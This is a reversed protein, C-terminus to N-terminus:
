RQRKGSPTPPQNASASQSSSSTPPQWHHFFIGGGPSSQSQEQQGIQGQGQQVGAGPPPPPGPRQEEAALRPLVQQIPGRLTSSPPGSAQQSRMTPSMPNSGYGYPVSPPGLPPPPAAAGAGPPPPAYPQPGALLRERRNDPSGTSHSQGTLQQQHASHLSNNYQQLWEVNLNALSHSGIGAFIIPVLHAPVGSRIADLLISQEIRRQELRLSEQRTKEEEQKRKEEEAKTSLWRSMSEESGQWSRPPEPMGAFSSTSIPPPITRGPDPLAMVSPPPLGRHPTGMKESASASPLSPLAEQDAKYTTRQSPIPPPPIFDHAHKFEYDARAPRPLTLLM